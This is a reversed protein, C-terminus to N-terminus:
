NKRALQLVKFLLEIDEANQQEKAKLSEFANTMEGWQKATDKLLGELRDQSEKLSNLQLTLSRSQSHSQSAAQKSSILASELANLRESFPKFFEILERELQDNDM